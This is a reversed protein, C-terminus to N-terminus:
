AKCGRKKNKCLQFARVKSIGMAHGIESYSLNQQRLRIADEPQCKAPRGLKKGQSKLKSLGAKTRESIRVKEQNALTSLLSIICDAFIGLSSIYQETYSHYKVKYNELKTLYELTKRSGERSFRDLSWFLLVDFKKQHAMEFVKKLGKRERASKGGSAIESIIEVITWNQKEAYEKLQEVQNDTQNDTSIRTYILCNM